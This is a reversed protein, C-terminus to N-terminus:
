KVADWMSSASDVDAGGGDLLTANYKLIRAHGDVFLYNFRLEHPIPSTASNNIFINYHTKAKVSGWHVGMRSINTFYESLLISEAPQTIEMDRRSTDTGDSGGGSIGRMQIDGEQLLNIGYSRRIHSENKKEIEDSPCQYVACQKETNINPIGKMEALTLTDRGDYGSILDDWSIIDSNTVKRTYPFYSDNNGNYMVIPIALQKLNSLCVTRKGAERAKSLSPLLLSVLIGIIAVAVLLEILTFKKKNNRIMKAEM